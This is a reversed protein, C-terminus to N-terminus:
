NKEKTYRLLVYGAFTLAIGSLFGVSIISGHVNYSVLATWTIISVGVVMVILPLVKSTM